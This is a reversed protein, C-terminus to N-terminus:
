IYILFMPNVDLKSHLLPQKKVKSYAKGYVFQVYM